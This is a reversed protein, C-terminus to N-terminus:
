SASPVTTPERVGVGSLAFHSGRSPLFEAPDAIVLRDNRRFMKPDRIMVDHVRRCLQSVQGYPEMIEPHMPCAYTGRPELPM